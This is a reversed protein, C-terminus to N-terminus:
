LTPEGKSRFTEIVRFKGNQVEVALLDQRLLIKTQPGFTVPGILLPVDKFKDIEDAVTKGDLSGTKEVAHAWAEIMAYGYAALGGEPRGFRKVYEDYFKKRRADPDDGFVSM